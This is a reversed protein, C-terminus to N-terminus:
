KFPKIQELTRKATNRGKLLGQDDLEDFTVLLSKKQSNTVTGIIHGHNLGGMNTNTDTTHFTELSRSRGIHCNALESEKSFQKQNM